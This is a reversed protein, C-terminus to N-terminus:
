FPGERIGTPTFVTLKAYALAAANDSKFTSDSDKIRAELQRKLEESFGAEEVAKRAGRGGQEIAEETMQALQESMRGRQEELNAQGNEDQHKRPTEETAVSQAQTAQQPLNRSQNFTRSQWAFANNASIQRLCSSCIRFSRERGVLM